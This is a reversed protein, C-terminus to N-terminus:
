FAIGTGAMLTLGSYNPDTALSNSNYHTYDVGIGVDIGPGLVYDTSLAFVDNRASSNGNRNQLVARTWDLSVAFPGM